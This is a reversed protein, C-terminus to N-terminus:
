SQGRCKNISKVVLPPLGILKPEKAVLSSLWRDGISAYVQWLGSDNHLTSSPWFLLCRSIVGEYAAGLIRYGRKFAVVIAVCHALGLKSKLIFM